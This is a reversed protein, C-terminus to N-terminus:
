SEFICTHMAHTHTEKESFKYQFILFISVAVYIDSPFVSLYLKTMFSVIRNQFTRQHLSNQRPLFPHSKLKVSTTEKGSM